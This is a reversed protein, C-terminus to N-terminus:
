AERVLEMGYKAALGKFKAIAAMQEAESMVAPTALERTLDDAPIAFGDPAMQMEEDLREVM